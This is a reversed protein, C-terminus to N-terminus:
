KKVLELAAMLDCEAVGPDMEIRFSTSIYSEKNGKLVAQIIANIDIGAPATIGAILIELIIRTNRIACYTIEISQREHDYRLRKPFRTISLNFYLDKSLQLGADGDEIIDVPYTVTCTTSRRGQSDERVTLVIDGSYYRTVVSAETADKCREYISRFHELEIQHDVIHEGLAKYPKVVKLNDKCEKGTIKKIFSM